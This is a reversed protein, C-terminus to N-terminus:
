IKLITNLKVQIKNDNYTKNCHIGYVIIKKRIIIIKKWNVALKPIYKETNEKTITSKKYQYCM